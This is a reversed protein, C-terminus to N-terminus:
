QAKSGVGSRRKPGADVVLETGFPHPAVVGETGTDKFCTLAREPHLSRMGARM